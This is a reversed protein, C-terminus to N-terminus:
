REARRAAAAADALASARADKQCEHFLRQLEEREDRTMRVGPCNREFAHAFAYSALAHTM